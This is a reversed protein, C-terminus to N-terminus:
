KRVLLWALAALVMIGTLNIGSAPAPTLDPAPPLLGSSVPYGDGTPQTSAAASVNAAIGSKGDAQLAAVWEALSMTRTTPTPNLVPNDVVDAM